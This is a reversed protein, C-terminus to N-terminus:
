TRFSIKLWISFSSRIEERQLGSSCLLQYANIFYNEISKSNMCGFEENKEKNIDDFYKIVDLKKFPKM